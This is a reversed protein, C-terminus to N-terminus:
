SIEVILLHRKKRFTFFLSLSIHVCSIATLVLIHYFYKCGDGSHKGQSCMFTNSDKLPSPFLDMSAVGSDITADNM